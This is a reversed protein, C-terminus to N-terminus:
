DDETAPEELATGASTISTESQCDPRRSLSIVAAVFDALEDQTLAKPLLMCDLHRARAKVARLAVGMADAMVLLPTSRFSPIARITECIQWGRDEAISVDILGLAPRLAAVLRM